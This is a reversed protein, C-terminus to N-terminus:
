QKIGPNEYVEIEEVGLVLPWDEIKDVMRQVGDINSVAWNRWIPDIVVYTADNIDVPFSFRDRPIDGPLHITENGEYALAMQFDAVNANIAWAIAPSAIILENANVRENVFDIVAEADRADIMVPDIDTKIGTDAQYFGLVGTMVVPSLIIVFLLLSTVVFVGPKVFRHLDVIKFDDALNSLYKKTGENISAFVERTGNILFGAMGVALLPFLPILYYYGLGPLAATRGLAFLTFLALIIGLYKIKRDRLMFFGAIAVVWWFDKFILTAYNFVIYPYQAILPISGLRFFTFRFDFLFAEPELSFMVVSYILFPIISALFTLYLDKWDKYLAIILIAPLLTFMMIDSLAGVGILISALLLNRVNGTELYKYMSWLIIVVLPALLNYSFGLRSYLIAKPYIALFLGAGLALYKEREGVIDNVAIMLIGVTLVGLGATLYRLYTIHIDTFSFIISTLAPFLPMRAALLTSKNLALYQFKGSMMNKAIEVLTGEDSYWGPNWSLNVYRLYGAVFLIAVGILGTGWGHHWNANENKNMSKNREYDGFM